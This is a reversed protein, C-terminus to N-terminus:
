RVRVSRLHMDGGLTNKQNSTVFSSVNPKGWLLSSDLEVAFQVTLLLVYSLLRSRYCV